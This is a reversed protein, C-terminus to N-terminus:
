DYIKIESLLEFMAMCKGTARETLFHFPGYKKLTEEYETNIREFNKMIIEIMENKTTKTTYTTNTM